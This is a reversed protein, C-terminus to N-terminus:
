RPSPGAPAGCWRALVARIAARQAAAGPGGTSDSGPAAGSGVTSDSGPAAGPGAATDAAWALYGDPRVLTVTGTAKATTVATVRDDYGTLTDPPLPGDAALV